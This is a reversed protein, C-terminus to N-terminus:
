EKVLTIPKMKKIVRRWLVRALDVIGFVIALGLAVRTMQHFLDVLTGATDLDMGTEAVLTGATLGILDPGLLMAQALIISVLHVAAYFWATVLEWRGRGILIIDLVIEAIWILNLWPLYRTFFVDALIPIATWEGKSSFGIGIIQPYFNFIVLAVTTIAIEFSVSVIGVHEASPEPRPLKRPDWEEERMKLKLGPIVWELIAFVVVINGLVQFATGLLGALGEILTKFILEASLNSQGVSMGFRLASLIIIIPLAIKVVMLFLPFLRPGILYREPLYSAAMKEPSGFEKLVEVIMEEDVPRGAKRSRDELTDELLSRIEKELDLRSKVPLHRGVEAIYRNILEM